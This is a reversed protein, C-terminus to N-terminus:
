EEVLNTWVAFYIPESSEGFYKNIIGGLFHDDIPVELAMRHLQGSEFRELNGGIDKVRQDSAESRPKFPNYQGIYITGEAVSGRHVKIVQYKLIAAYDYLDREFIAGEPIKELRATVEVTGRTTVQRDEGNSPSDSDSVDCSVALWCLLFPITSLKPSKKNM